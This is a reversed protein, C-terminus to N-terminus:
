IYKCLLMSSLTDLYVCLDNISHYTNYLSCVGNSSFYVMVRICNKSTRYISVYCCNYYERSALLVFDDTSALLRFKRLISHSYKDISNLLSSYM